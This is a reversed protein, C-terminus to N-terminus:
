PHAAATATPAAPTEAALADAEAKLAAAKSVLAQVPPLRDAVAKAAVASAAALRDADAKRPPLTALAAQAGARAAELAKAAVARDATGKGAAAVAAKAAEATAQSRGRAADAARAAADRVTGARAALEQDRPAKTAAALDALSKAAAASEAAVREAQARTGVEWGELERAFRASAGASREVSEVEALRRAAAEADATGKAAAQQALTHAQQALGSAATSAAAAAQLAALSQAAAAAEVQAAAAQKRALDLRVVLPAPNAALNGLRKGEKAEWVRVEGSWDGAVVAAGDHTTVAELALDPFPEFGRQANGNGDWLKAQRDRGATVIRGDKAFRVSAVGGGHAGWSKVPNGNEMEWLRVTGDESASAVVNSDPRWSIDTIALTHGRLDFFERGTAAEWVLLGNNRDGTALLVGDPSFELATVWDTHKKIEYMLEGDATGYVKVIKGPGGVAIQGHDPSIDAALVADYEKGVEFARKGTKVDWVVVRGSQGGRGGGALLLGGNRSFKLVHVTGEPFPYVGALRLTDTRYVLVQKHGAVAVLPAWPSAALAVIANPRSSVVPPDTSVHEPMAPPGQPKGAASADLKFEFKPKAKVAVAGGPTEPAGAEIWRKIVDLEPDPLKPSKPPMHPEEGHNVLLWLHSGDADAPEVVKGSSGGRMLAGYNDLALGGKQKDGNHCGNCKAQFIPAVHEAYNPKPAPADAAGASTAALASAVLAAIPNARM